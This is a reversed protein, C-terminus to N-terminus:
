TEGLECVVAVMSTLQEETREGRSRNRDVPDGLRSPPSDSSRASLPRWHPRTRPHVTNLSTKRQVKEQQTRTITSLQTLINLMGDLNLTKAENAASIKWRNANL